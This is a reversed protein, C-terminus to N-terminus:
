SLHPITSDMYPLCLRQDADQNGRLQDADPKKSHRSEITSHNRQQKKDHHRKNTHEYVIYSLVDLCPM